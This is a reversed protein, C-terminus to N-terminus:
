ILKVGGRSLLSTLCGQMLFRSTSRGGNTLSTLGLVGQVNESIRIQVPHQGKLDTRDPTKM